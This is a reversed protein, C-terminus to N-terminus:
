GIWYQVFGGLTILLDSINLSYSTQQIISGKFQYKSLFLNPSYLYVIACFSEM